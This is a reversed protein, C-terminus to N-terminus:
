KALAKIKNITKGSLMHNKVKYYAERLNKEKNSVILGAAANLAVIELFSNHKGSFIEIIKRSNYLSDKGIISKFKYKKKIFNKPNIIFNKIFYYNLYLFLGIFLFLERPHFIM